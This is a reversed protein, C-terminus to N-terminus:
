LFLKGRKPEQVPPAPPQPAVPQPPLLEDSLENQPQPMARRGDRVGNQALDLLTSFREANQLARETENALNIGYM